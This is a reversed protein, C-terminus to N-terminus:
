PQKRNVQATPRNKKCGRSSTSVPTISFPPKVAGKKGLTKCRSPAQIEKLPSLPELPSSDADIPSISLSRLPTTNSRVNTIKEAAISFFLICIVCRKCFITSPHGNILNLTIWYWYNVCNNQNIAMWSCLSM